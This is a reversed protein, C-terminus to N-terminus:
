RMLIGLVETEFAYSYLLKMMILFMMSKDLNPFAEQLPPTALAHLEVVPM